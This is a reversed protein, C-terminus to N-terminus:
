KLEHEKEIRRFINSFWFNELPKSLYYLKFNYKNHSTLTM